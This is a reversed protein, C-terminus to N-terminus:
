DQDTKTKTIAVDTNVSEVLTYDAPLTITVPVTYNGETKGSLDVSAHIQSVDLEDLDEAGGMVRIELDSQGFVASLGEGLNEKVINKMDITYSRSGQPLIKVEAVVTNSINSALRIGNPLYNTIDVRATVDSTADTVDIAQSERDITVVNGSDRFRKLADADGVVQITSPTLTIEGVQYRSAPRGYAQAVVQVDSDVQYLNVHVKIESEASSLTLYSKQIDTLEDGNKDYIQVECGLDSDRSLGSVDIKASVRDIKDILSESGRITIQEPNTQLNGVEYGNEPSTDGATANIVFDKSKMDELQIQINRPMVVVNDASVGPVVVQVPVMVPNSNFDIIQTLDATATINQSSIKERVSRSAYVRVSVTEFGDAVEYSQGNGEIYSVNTFSVPIGSITRYDIPDSVNTIALWIFFALMLSAIFLAPYGPFKPKRM